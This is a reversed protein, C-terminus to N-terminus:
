YVRKRGQDLCTLCWWGRGWGREKSGRPAGVVKDKSSSHERSTAVHSRASTSARRILDSNM